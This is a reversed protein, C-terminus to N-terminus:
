DFNLLEFLHCDHIFVKFFQETKNKLFFNAQLLKGLKGWLLFRFAKFFFLIYREMKKKMHSILSYGWTPLYVPEMQVLCTTNVLKLVQPHQLQHQDLRQFKALLQLMAPLRNLLPLCQLLLLSWTKLVNQKQLSLSVTMVLCSSATPHDVKKIRLPFYCVIELLKEQCFIIFASFCM